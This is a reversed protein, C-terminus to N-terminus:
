TPDTSNAVRERAKKTHSSEGGNEGGLAETEKVDGTPTGNIPAVPTGGTIGAAMQEAINTGKAQDVMQALMLMQQQMQLIQQYMGGNQSIKQMIFEKRDFDMMDICALAQDAM